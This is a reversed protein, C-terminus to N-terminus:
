NARDTRPLIRGRVPRGICFDFNEGLYRLCWCCHLVIGRSFDPGETKNGAWQFQFGFNPQFTPTSSRARWDGSQRHAPRWEPSHRERSRRWAISFIGRFFQFLKPLSPSIANLCVGCRARFILTGSLNGAPEVVRVPRAILAFTSGAASHRPANIDHLSAINRLASEREDRRTCAALAM